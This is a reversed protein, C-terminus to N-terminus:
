GGLFAEFHTVSGYLGILNLYALFPVQVLIARSTSLRMSIPSDMLVRQPVSRILQVQM